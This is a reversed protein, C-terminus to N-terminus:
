KLAVSFAKPELNPLKYVTSDADISPSKKSIASRFYPSRARLITSHAQFSKLFSDQGVEIVFNFDDADYFWKTLDQSLSQKLSHCAHQNNNASRQLITADQRCVMFEFCLCLCCWLFVDFHSTPNM